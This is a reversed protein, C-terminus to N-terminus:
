PDNKACGSGIWDAVSFELLQHVAPRIEHCHHSSTKYFDTSLNSKQQFLVTTAFSTLEKRHEGAACINLLITKSFSM